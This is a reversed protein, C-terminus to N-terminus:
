YRFQKLIQYIVMKQENALNEESENRAFKNNELDILHNIKKEDLVIDIDM